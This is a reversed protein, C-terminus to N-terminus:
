QLSLSIEGYDGILANDNWTLYQGDVLHFFGSGGTSEVEETYTGDEAYTRTKVEADSYNYKGTSSDYTLSMNWVAADAASGAWSLEVNYGDGNKTINASIRTYIEGYWIGDIGMDKIFTDNNEQVEAQVAKDAAESNNNAETESEQKKETPNDQKKDKSDVNKEETKVSKEGENKVTEADKVETKVTEEKKIPAETSEATTVAKDNEKEKSDEVTVIETTVSETAKVEKVSDAACGAFAAMMAITIGLVTIKKRM